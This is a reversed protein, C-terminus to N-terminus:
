NGTLDVTRGKDANELFLISKILVEIVCVDKNAAFNALRDHKQAMRAIIKAKADNDGMIGAEGDVTLARTRTKGDPQLDRTDILLSVRPNAAINEYKRTEKLTLMYMKTGPDDCIYLMLSADPVDDRCTCLVCLDSNRLITMVEPQM